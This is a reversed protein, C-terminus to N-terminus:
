VVALKGSCHSVNLLQAGLADRSAMDDGGEELFLHRGELAAAVRYKM